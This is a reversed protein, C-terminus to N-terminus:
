RYPPAGEVDVPIRWVVGDDNPGDNFRNTPGFDAVLVDREGIAAMGLNTYLDAM